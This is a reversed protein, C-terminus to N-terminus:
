ITICNVKCHVFKSAGIHGKYLPEVTAIYLIYVVYRVHIAYLCACVGSSAEIYLMKGITKSMILSALDTGCEALIINVYRM